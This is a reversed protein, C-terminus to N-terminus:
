GEDCTKRKGIARRKPGWNPEPNMPFRKAKKKTCVVTPITFDVELTSEKSLIKQCTSNSNRKKDSVPHMKIWARMIDWVVSPPADTKIAMPEKHQGSCRYGANTLAARFINSAPMTCSLTHCLDGLLYYLPADNLEESVATLLGHLPTHSKFPFKVQGTELRKVAEDVVDFDHLPDIWIPGAIKFPADTDECKEVPPGRSPKYVRGNYAAIPVTYFSPCQASQYVHGIKTCAKNVGARNDYVEVFIRIYFAMGVSLIPKITRGYKGAATSLTQLVIRLALEQLYRGKPMPMAGYRGFCTEPLGGSLVKMDTCTVCLLGGDAIAQVAGDIFPAASGYPDIDIVDFQQGIGDQPRRGRNSYMVMTADGQQPKVIQESVNNYRVNEDALRVAAPDLDNVIIEKVGHIEKAYRISRLGSAALADLIRLGSESLTQELWDSWSSISKTAEKWEQDTLEVTQHQKIKEEAILKKRKEKVLSTKLIRKARRQAYMDIMLISLDRNQVQVPNYFVEQAPYDNNKNNNGTSDRKKYLMRAQGEEILEYGQPVDATKASENLDDSKRQVHSSKSKLTATTPVVDAPQSDVITSMIREIIKRLPTVPYPKRGFNGCIHSSRIIQNSSFLRCLNAPLLTHRLLLKTIHGCDRSSTTVIYKTNAIAKFM